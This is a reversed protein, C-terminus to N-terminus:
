HIILSSYTSSFYCRLACPMASCKSDSGGEGRNKIEVMMILQQAVRGNIDNKWDKKTAIMKIANLQGWLTNNRGV